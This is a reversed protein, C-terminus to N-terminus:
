WNKYGESGTYVPAVRDSTGIRKQVAMATISNQPANVTFVAGFAQPNTLGAATIINSAWFLGVTGADVTGLSVNLRQTGTDTTVDVTVEGDVTSNNFIKIFTDEQTAASAFMYPVTGVWGNIDWIIIKTSNLSVDRYLNDNAFDLTATVSFSDPNLKDEGTLSQVLRDVYSDHLRYNDDAPIALTAQTGASNVTFDYYTDDDETMVSLEELKNLQGGADDVTYRFTAINSGAKNLSLRWTDGCNNYAANILGLPARAHFPGGGIGGNWPLFNTRFSPPNVDITKTIQTSQWSFQQYIHVLAVAPALCGQITGVADFCQPVGLTVYSGTAAGGIIIAPNNPGGGSFETTSLVLTMNAPILQNGIIFTADSASIVDTGAMTEFNGSDNNLLYLKVNPWSGNALHFVIRASSPLDSTTQYIIQVPTPGNVCNFIVGAPANVLDGTDLDIKITASVAAEGPYGLTTGPGLSTTINGAFAAGTMLTFAIMAVILVGSIKKM